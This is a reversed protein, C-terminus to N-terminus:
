ILDVRIIKALHKAAHVVVVADSHLHRINDLKKRNGDLFAVTTHSVSFHTPCSRVREAKKWIGGRSRNDCTRCGEDVDRFQPAYEDVLTVGISIRTLVSYSAQAGRGFSEKVERRNNHTENM